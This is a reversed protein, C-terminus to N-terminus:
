AQQYYHPNRTPHGPDCSLGQKAHVGSVRWTASKRSTSLSNFKLEISPSGHRRKCLKNTGPAILDPGFRFGRGQLSTRFLATNAYANVRLRRLLGVRSQAFDGARAHGVTNCNGRVNRTDAMVQLLVGDHEHTAAAHLIKRAHTIVHNAPCEVGCANFVALLPARLVAGLPGFGCLLLRTRARSPARRSPSLIGRLPNMTRRSTGASETKPLSKTCFNILEIIHSPLREFACRM